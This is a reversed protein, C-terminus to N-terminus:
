PINWQHGNCYFSKLFYSSCLIHLCTGIWCSYGFLSLRVLLKTQAFRLGCIPYPYPQWCGICSRTIPKSQGRFWGDQKLFQELCLVVFVILPFPKNLSCGFNCKTIHNFESINYLDILLCSIYPLGFTFAGMLFCVKYRRYRAENNGLFRKVFSDTLFGALGDLLWEALLCYAILLWILLWQRKLVSSVLSWCYNLVWDLLVM